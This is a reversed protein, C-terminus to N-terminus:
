KCGGGVLHDIIQYANEISAARGMDTGNKAWSRSPTIIRIGRGDQADKITYGKYTEM